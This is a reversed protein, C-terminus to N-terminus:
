APGLACIGHPAPDSPLPPGNSLRVCGAEAMRALVAEGQDPNIPDPPEGALGLIVAKDTGHGKGTFALSGHLRVTLRGADPLSTATALDLFRHAAVMPGVTHSSSPGIGIKFLEFVSLFM